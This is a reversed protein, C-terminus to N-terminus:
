RMGRLERFIIEMGSVEVVGNSNILKWKIWTSKWYNAHVEFEGTEIQAATVWAGNTTDTMYQVTLGTIGTHGQLRLKYIKKFQGPSNFDFRKSVWEWPLRSSSGCVRLLAPYMAIYTDDKPTQIVTPHYWSESIDGFEWKDWRNYKPNYAWAHVLITDGPMSQSTCLLLTNREAMWGLTPEYATSGAGETWYPSQDAYKIVDAIPKPYSRGDYLWVNDRNSIFMGYPTLAVSHVHPTGVGKFTAEIMMSEPEIRYMTSESFAYLRGEFGIMANVDEPMVIYDNLFNFMDYRNRKSRFLYRQSHEIYPSGGGDLVKGGTVFMYGNAVASKGYMMYYRAIEEPMGTFAEYTQALDGNDFIEIEKYTGSTTWSTDNISVTKVLRYSGETVGGDGVSCWLSIGTVRKNLNAFNNIRVVVKVSDCSYNESIVAGGLNPYNGSRCLPSEQYGDYTYSLSYLRTQAGQLADNANAPTVEGQNIISTLTVWGNGTGYIIEPQAPSTFLSTPKAGGFQGHQPYGSWVAAQADGMGIHIGYASSQFTANSGATLFSGTGIGSYSPYTDSPTLGYFDTVVRIVNDDQRRYFLDYKNDARKLFGHEDARNAYSGVNLNGNVSRLVGLEADGEINKSSSAANDPIDANDIASMIGKDFVKILLNNRPM